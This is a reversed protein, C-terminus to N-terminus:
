TGRICRREVNLNALNPEAAHYGSLSCQKTMHLGCSSAGAAVLSPSREHSAVSGLSLLHYTSMPKMTYHTPLNLSCFHAGTHLPPATLQTQRM